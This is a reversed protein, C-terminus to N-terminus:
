KCGCKVKGGAKYGPIGNNMKAKTLPNMPQGKIASMVGKIRSPVVGGKAFGVAEGMAMRKHQNIM